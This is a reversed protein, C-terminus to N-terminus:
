RLRRVRSVKDEVAIKVMHWKILYNSALYNRWQHYFITGRETFLVENILHCSWAPASGRKQKSCTKQSQM